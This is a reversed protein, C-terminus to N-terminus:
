LILETWNLKTAWDYRVRQSGMSQLMDPRGTWWWSGSNVWVWIWQTLSAMWGDWGRDDGERGQFVWICMLDQKISLIVDLINTSFSQWLQNSHKHKKKAESRSVPKYHREEDHTIKTSCAARGSDSSKRLSRNDLAM